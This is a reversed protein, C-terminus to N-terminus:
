VTGESGWLAMHFLPCQVASRCSTVVPLVRPLPCLCRWGRARGGRMPLSPAPFNPDDKRRLAGPPHLPECWGWPGRCSLIHGWRTGLLPSPTAAVAWPRVADRSRLALVGPARGLEQRALSVMDLPSGPEPAAMVVLVPHWLQAPGLLAGQYGRGHSPAVLRAEAPSMAWSVATTVGSSVPSLM